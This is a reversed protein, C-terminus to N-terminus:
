RYRAKLSGWTSHEVVTTLGSYGGCSSIVCESPLGRFFWECDLSVTGPAGTASLFGLDFRFPVGPTAQIPRVLEVTRSLDNARMFLVAAPGDDVSARVNVLGTPNNEPDWPVHIAYRCRVILEVGVTAPSPSSIVFEDALRGGTPVGAFNGVACLTTLSASTLNWSVTSVWSRAPPGTVTTDFVARSVSISDDPSYASPNVYAGAPCETPWAIAQGAFCATVFLAIGVAVAWGQFAVTSRCRKPELRRSRSGMLQGGLILASIVCGQLTPADRDRSASM